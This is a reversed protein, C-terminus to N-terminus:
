ENEDSIEESAYQEDTVPEMWDVVKGDVHEQIALHTMGASTTAGHWHKVGPPTWVVDGSKIKRKTQGWEQVWGTGATVILTQGAPHSHWASRAGPGFSVSGCSVRSLKTAAFVPTVTVAGTFNVPAGPRSARATAPTIVMRELNHNPSSAGGTGTSACSATMIACVFIPWQRM